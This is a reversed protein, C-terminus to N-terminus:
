YPKLCIKDKHNYFLLTLEQKLEKYYKDDKENIKKLIEKVFGINRKDCLHQYHHMFTDLDCSRYDIINDIINDILEAKWKNEDYIYGINSRLNQISVNKNEPINDNLHMKKVCQELAMYGSNLISVREAESLKTTMEMGFNVIYNNITGNNNINTNSISTAYAPEKTKLESIRVKLDSLQESLKNLITLGYCFKKKHRTLTDRRTFTKNCETCQFKNSVSDDDFQNGLNKGLFRVITPKHPDYVVCQTNKHPDNETEAKVICPIKRNIHYTYHSKRHFEKNCQPCKYTVM